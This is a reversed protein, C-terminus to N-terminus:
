KKSAKVNSSSAKKAPSKVVKAKGKVAAKKAPSKAKSKKPTMKASVKSKEAGATAKNAASSKSKKPTVKTSSAKKTLSAKKAPKKAAKALKFSGSAGTGKMQLLTGDKIGAKLAMKLRTNVKDVESGVPFKAQIYKLIGQRTSGKREKLTVIAEGIMDKYKPHDATQSPKRPTVSKKSASKKPATPGSRSPKPLAGASASSKVARPAVGSETAVTAQVDAM